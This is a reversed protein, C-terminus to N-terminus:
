DTPVRYIGVWSDQLHLIRDRILGTAFLLEVGKCVEWIWDYTKVLEPAFDHWLILSQPRCKKLVKETDNFVFRADHCGDIFVVDIPGFDPEWHLTNAFIQRVNTYGLSRYEMGIEERSPAVSIHKGGKAIDEPLINVTYVMGEPANRAMLATTRGYSTGIELLINPRGNCCAAGIVEADRIRRDNLDELYQFAHLHEGELVPNKTWGMARKLYELNRVKLVNSELYPFSSGLKLCKRVGSLLRKSM